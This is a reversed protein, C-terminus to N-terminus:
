VNNEISVASIYGDIIDRVADHTISLPIFRMASLLAVDNASQLGLKDSIHNKHLSVTKVSLNLMLSLDQIGWGRLMLSMVVEERRTLFRKRAFYNEGCFINEMDRLTANASIFFVNNVESLITPFKFDLAIVVRARSNLLYYSYFFYMDDYTTLNLIVWDNGTLHPLIPDDKRSNEDFFYIVDTLGRLGQLYYYNDTVILVTM